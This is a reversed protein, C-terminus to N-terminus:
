VNDDGRRDGSNSISDDVSVEDIGEEAIGKEDNEDLLGHTNLGSDQNTKKRFNLIQDLKSITISM